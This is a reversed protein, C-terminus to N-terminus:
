SRRSLRAAIEAAPLPKCFFYGQYQECGHMRLFDLQALTEVGETVVKMQLGHAMAIIAKVIEADHAWVADYCIHLTVPPLTGEAPAADAQAVLAEAVARATELSREAPNWSLSLSDLGPVVDEWGQGQAAQALGAVQDPGLSRIMLWDDACYIPLTM